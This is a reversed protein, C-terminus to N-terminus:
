VFAFPNPLVPRDPSIGVPGGIAATATEVAVTPALGTPTGVTAGDAASWIAVASEETEWIEFFAAELRGKNADCVLDRVIRKALSNILTQAKDARPKYWDVAEVIKPHEKAFGRIQGEVIPRIVKELPCTVAGRAEVNGRVDADHLNSASSIGRSAM